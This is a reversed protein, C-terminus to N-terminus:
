LGVCKCASSPPGYEVYVVYYQPTEFAFILRRDPYHATGSTLIEAGIPQNPNGLELFKQVFARALAFKLERPLEKVSTMKRGLQAGALESVLGRPPSALGTVQLISCALWVWVLQKM